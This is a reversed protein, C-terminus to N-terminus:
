RAAMERSCVTCLNEGKPPTARRAGSNSRAGRSTQITRARARRGISSIREADYHHSCPSRPTALCLTPIRAPVRVTVAGRRLACAEELDIFAGEGLVLSFRFAVGYGLSWPTALPSQEVWAGAAGTSARGDM